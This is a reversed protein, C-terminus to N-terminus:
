VHARGIQIYRWSAMVCLPMILTTLLVLLLSIGDIGVAYNIGLKPIWNASEFFQFDSTKPDFRFYLQLSFLAIGTTFALTWLRQLRESRLFATVAAAVLPSFILVSLMHSSDTPSTVTM